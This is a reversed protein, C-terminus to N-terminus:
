IFNSKKQVYFDKKKVMIGEIDIKGVSYEPIRPRYFMPTKEESVVIIEADSDLNRMREAATIGAPGSGVILYTKGM